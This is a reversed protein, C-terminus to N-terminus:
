ADLVQVDEAPWPIGEPDREEALASAWERQGCVWVVPFDAGEVVATLARLERAQGDAGRASVLAGPQITTLTPMLLGYATGFRLVLSFRRYERARYETQAVTGRV